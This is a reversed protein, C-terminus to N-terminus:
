LQTRRKDGLGLSFRSSALEAFSSPPLSFTRSSMNLSKQFHAPAPKKAAKFLAHIKGRTPPPPQLLCPGSLRAPEAGHPLPIRGAQFGQVRGLATPSGPQGLVDVRAWAGRGPWLGQLDCCLFPGHGGPISTLVDVARAPPLSLDPAPPWSLIRPWHPRLWAPLLRPAPPARPPGPPAACAPGPSQACLCCALPLM